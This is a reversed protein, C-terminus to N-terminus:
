PASFRKAVREGLRASRGRGAIATTPTADEIHWALSSRNSDDGQDLEAYLQYIRKGTEIHVLYFTEAAAAPSDGGFAPPHQRAMIDVFTKNLCGPVVEYLTRGMATFVNNPDHTEIFVDDSIAAPSLAWHSGAAKLHTGAPRNTCIKILDELSTPYLIKAANLATGPMDHKRSWPANVAKDISM